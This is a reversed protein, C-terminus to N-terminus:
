SQGDVAVTQSQEVLLTQRGNWRQLFVTGSDLVTLTRDFYWSGCNVYTGTNWHTIEPHHSHGLIVLDAPSSQLIERAHARLDAVVSPDPADDAFTRSFWQGLHMGLSGPLIMRYLSVLFPNRLVPKLARYVPKSPAIGDGHALYVNRGDLTRRVPDMHVEVGLERSFYDLHWPDHNGVLYTIPVGASSWEALLGQLRLLGKPILQDYEIYCDFIDGLLYLAEVRRELHRLCEILEDEMARDEDLSGRGYHVDSIFVIM